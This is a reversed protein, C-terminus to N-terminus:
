SASYRMRHRRRSCGRTPDHTGSAKRGNFLVVEAFVGEMKKMDVAYEDRTGPVLSPYFESQVFVFSQSPPTDGPADIIVAGYM